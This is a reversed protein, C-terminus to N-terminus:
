RATEIVPASPASRNGAKDVAQVAYALRTGAPAKEEYSTQPVPARTAPTLQGGPAGRLVIYGVADKEPSPSWIL